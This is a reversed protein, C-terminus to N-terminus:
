HDSRSFGNKMINSAEALVRDLVAGTEKRTMAAMEENAQESIRTIEDADAAKKLLADYKKVIAHAKAATAEQYREVHIISKGYSADALAAILRSCWYFSDTSVEKTTSGLYDPTRTIETYFPVMTNFANSAYAVWELVKAGEPMYPRIQFMGLFDTRNIGITRYIGAKADRGYPDYPTGQYHSSLIYKVDEVTIKREPVLCWPLNDSEPTYDANEGEWRYTHPNLYRLMYWARPTNYVHDSDSHSGFAERPNFSGGLTLDLHNEDMFEKMDASCMYNKKEGYADAFDFHDIGFQNPMVVYVEDPVRVALWHHGGVSEFWWIEDQDAFAIGNTEYTGYQELLSGLREVGERASHIYPLVLVVLDEEGIGGPVEEKGDAAPIRVVLPDAGLVRENSTTTETATMAVGAANAGAAAWIGSGDKANPMATYRMPNDPLDIEVHSIVSKYRRPQKEPFVVTFKKPMAHGAGSDDNRAIMISGDYSAKRGVLITTCAMTIVEKGDM